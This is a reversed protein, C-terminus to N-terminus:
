LSCTRWRMSCATPAWTGKAACQLSTVTGGGGSLGRGPLLQVPRGQQKAHYLGADAQRFLEEYQAQSHPALGVGISASVPVHDEAAEYAINLM